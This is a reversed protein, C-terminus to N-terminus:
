QFVADYSVIYSDSYAYLMRDRPNYNLSQINTQMKKLHIKLDYREERTETDFSYFIEETQKDQFRTAYLVGCAMFTNTATRKHLSTRWSRGLSPPSGELVESLIVNGFNDPTTYVVWLGSEDTAFDLDTYIYTADLHGFPFKNNFGSNQPLPTNTITRTSINFRCVSPTNYCGYYLADGYQVVNPGIITNTTPNSSAITTDVPGVGVLITSLSSYHRVYNAFANSSTLAVLWYMDEKGPAPKPDKGWAGYYYSTGYQTLSYTRPGNMNVLQGQPCRRPRPIPPQPTAHLEHECKALDRKMRQNERQKSVVQSVDFTELEEMGKTVNQMKTATIESLQKNSKITNKLKGLLVQVEALELEIIRLSVAGYLDGDDENELVSVSKELQDLRRQVGLMLVDVETLQTSTISKTCDNAATNISNLKEMPFPRQLNELECVCDKGSVSQSFLALFFAATRVSLGFSKM